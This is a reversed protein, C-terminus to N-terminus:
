TSMCVFLMVQRLLHVPLADADFLPPLLHFPALVVFCSRVRALVHAPV